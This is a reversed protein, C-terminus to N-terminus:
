YMKGDNLKVIVNGMEGVNLHEDDVCKIKTMKCSDFDVLWQKNETLHNAYGIDMYWWDVLYVGDSEFDM